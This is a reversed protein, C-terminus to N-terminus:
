FRGALTVAGGQPLTAVGLRPASESRRVVASRVLAFELAYGVVAGAALTAATIHLGLETDQHGGYTPSDSPTAAGQAHAVLALIEATAALATLTVAAGLAHWSPRVLQVQARLLEGEALLLQSSLPRYGAAGARLQHPGPSLAQPGALGVPLGDITLTANPVNVTLEVATRKPVVREAPVASLVASLSLPAAACRVPLEQPEFGPASFAVHHDGPAVRVTTPIAVASGGDVAARGASPTASLALDCGVPRLAFELASTEGFAVTVDKAASEYGELEAIIRHKGPPLSLEIPAKGRGRADKEDLYITAGAPVSSIKIVGVNRSAIGQVLKLILERRNSTPDLVLVRELVEKAKGLQGLNLYANGLYLAAKATPHAELSLTLEEAARLYHETTFAKLGAELHVDHPAAAAAGPLAAVALVLLLIRLLRACTKATM